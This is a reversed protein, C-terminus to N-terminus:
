IDRIVKRGKNRNSAIYGDKWVSKM